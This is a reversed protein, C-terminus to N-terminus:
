FPYIFFLVSFFKRSAIATLANSTKREMENQKEAASVKEEKSKFTPIYKKERIM